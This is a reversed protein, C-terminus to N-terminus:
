RNHRLPDWRGEDSVLGHIPEIGHRLHLLYQLPYGDPRQRKIHVVAVRLFFGVAVGAFSGVLLSWHFSGVIPFSLACVFVFAAFGAYLSMYLESVTLGAFTVPQNSIRLSNPMGGQQETEAM